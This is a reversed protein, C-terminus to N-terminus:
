QGVEICAFIPQYQTLFLFSLMYWSWEVSPWMGLLLQGIFFFSWYLFFVEHKKIQKTQNKTRQNQNHQYPPPLVQALSFFIILSNQMSIFFNYFILLLKFSLSRVCTLLRSIYPISPQTYAIIISEYKLIILELQKM